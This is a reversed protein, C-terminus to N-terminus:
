AAKSHWSVANDEENERIWSIFYMKLENDLDREHDFSILNRLEEAFDELTEESREKSIQLYTGDKNLLHETLICKIYKEREM